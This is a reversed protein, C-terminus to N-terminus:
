TFQDTHLPKIHQTQINYMFTHDYLTHIHGMTQRYKVCPVTERRGLKDSQFSFFLIVNLFHFNLNSYVNFYKLFLNHEGITHVKTECAFTASIFLLSRFYYSKETFEFSLVYFHCNIM